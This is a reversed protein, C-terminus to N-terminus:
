CSTKALQFAQDADKPTIVKVSDESFGHQCFYDKVQRALQSEKKGSNPNYFIRVTKM